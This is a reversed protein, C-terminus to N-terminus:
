TVRARLPIDRVIGWLVAYGLLVGALSLGAITLTPLTLASTLERVLPLGDTGVLSEGPALLLLGFPLTALGLLVNRIFAAAFLAGAVAWLLLALTFSGFIAPFDGATGFMATYALHHPWGALAYAGREVLYGIAVLLALTAALAVLYPWLQRVFDRRTNGHALHLRLYTTIADVGLGLAFWRPVQTAVYHWISQDIHGWTAIGITIAASVVVLMLWLMLAFSLHATLLVGLMPWRTRTTM